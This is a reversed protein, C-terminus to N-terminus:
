SLVLGNLSRIGAEIADQVFGSPAQDSSGENLYIMYPVGSAIFVAGRQMRYVLLAATATEQRSAASPTAARRGEESGPDSPFSPSRGIGPVWNARAWGTDVPTREILEAQINTALAGIARSVGREIEAMVEAVSDAM